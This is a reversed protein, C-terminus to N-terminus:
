FISFGFVQEDYSIRVEEQPSKGEKLSCVSTVGLYHSCQSSHNRGRGHFEVNDVGHLLAVLAGHAVLTQRAPVSGQAALMHEAVVTQDFRQEADASVSVDSVVDNAGDTLVDGEDFFLLLLQARGALVLILALHLYQLHRKRCCRGLLFSRM